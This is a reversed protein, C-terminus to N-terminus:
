WAGGDMPNALCSHQLPTGNGEGIKSEYLTRNIRFLECPLSNISIHAKNDESLERKKIKEYNRTVTSVKILFTRVLHTQKTQVIKTSLCQYLICIVMLVIILTIIESGISHIIGQLWGRPDLGSLQNALQEALKWILPLPCVKLFPKLSKKKYYNYM